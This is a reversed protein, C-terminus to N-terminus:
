SGSREVYGRERSPLTNVNGHFSSAPDTRQLRWHWVGGVDPAAASGVFEMGVSKLVRTSANFEALTHADVRKVHAHSLAHDILGQAAEAALGQRRYAPVIAYGIEVTGTEDARGKYGGLGILVRDKTHVFLHTWWGLLGPDAKLRKHMFRIADIGAVGPFDFSDDLVTAGLMFGLRDPDNPIAEFHRLGCPILRLRPTEIM